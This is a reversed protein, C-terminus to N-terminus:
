PQIASTLRWPLVPPPGCSVPGKIGANWFDRLRQVINSEMEKIGQTDCGARAMPDRKRCVLWVSSSLVASSLSRTRAARETQIPWSRDVVLGAKIIAAM